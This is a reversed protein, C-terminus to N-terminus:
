FSTDLVRPLNGDLTRLRESSPCSPCPLRRQPYWFAAVKLNFRTFDLRRAKVPESSRRRTHTQRMVDDGKRQEATRTGSKVSEILLARVLRPTKRKAADSRLHQQALHDVVVGTKDYLNWALKSM